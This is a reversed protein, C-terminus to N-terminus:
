GGLSIYQRMTAVEALVRRKDTWQGWSVESGDQTLVYRAQGTTSNTEITLTRM